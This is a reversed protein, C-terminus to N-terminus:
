LARNTQSSTTGPLLSGDFDNWLSFHSNLHPCNIQQMLFPIKFKLIYTLLRQLIMLMQDKLKAIKM